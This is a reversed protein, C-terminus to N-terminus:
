YTSYLNEQYFTVFVAAETRLEHCYLVWGNGGSVYPSEGWRGIGFSRTNSSLQSQRLGGYRPDKLAEQRKGRASGLEETGMGGVGTHGNLEAQGNCIVKRSIQEQVRDKREGEGLKAGGRRTGADDRKRRILEVKM